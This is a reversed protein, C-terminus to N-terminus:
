HRHSNKGPTDEIVKLRRPYTAVRGAGGNHSGAGVATRESRPYLDFVRLVHAMWAEYIVVAVEYWSSSHTCTGPM